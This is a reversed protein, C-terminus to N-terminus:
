RGALASRIFAPMMAEVVAILRGQWRAPWEGEPWLPRRAHFHRAYAVNTGVRVEGPRPELVSGPSGPSLSNILRGTDRGIEVQTGGYQGIVTKGGKSKVVAWALAAADANSRGQRVASSYVGRWLRDQAATLLPRSGRDARAARTRRSNLGPHRRGYAVYEPSLPDWKIGAADTGGRAKEVYAEKVVAMAEVGLAKALQLALRQSGPARGALMEPLRSLRAQLEAASVSTTLDAM